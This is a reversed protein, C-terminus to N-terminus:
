SFIDGNISIRRSLSTGFGVDVTGNPLYAVVNINSLNTGESQEITKMVRALAPPSKLAILYAGMTQSTNPVVQWRESAFSPDRAGDPLYRVMGVGQDVGNSWQGYMLIKEDPLLLRHSRGHISALGSIDLLQIRPSATGMLVSRQPM